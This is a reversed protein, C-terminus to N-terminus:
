RTEIITGGMVVREGEYLVLAQGKTLDLQKESFEVEAMGDAQRLVRAAHERGRYRHKAKLGEQRKITESDLINLQNILAISCGREDSTGVTVSAAMPDIKLVYLPEPGSIGIGRRQGITFHHVGQHTGVVTGKVDIITGSAPLEKGQNQLYKEIFTTYNGKPVFCIDQSEQKHATGLGNAAALRRIEEKSYAGLPLRIFNRQESDLTYLVYSQDKNLDKAKLLDGQNIRAYHGTALCDFGESRAWEILASFKLKRNCEICPNPTSGERYSQVFPEIVQRSFETRLDLVVHPIGLQICVQKADLTEQSILPYPETDEKSLSDCSSDPLLQMTVGVCEYGAEQMLLATVSSDVGGSMAVACRLTSM